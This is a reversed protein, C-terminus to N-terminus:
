ASHKMDELRGSCMVAVESAIEHPERGLSRALEGIAYEAVFMMGRAMEEHGSFVSTCFVLDSENDRSRAALLAAAKQSVNLASPTAVVLAFM